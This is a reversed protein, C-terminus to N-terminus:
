LVNSNSYKSVDNHFYVWQRLFFFIYSDKQGFIYNSRIVNWILVDIIIIIIINLTYVFNNARIEYITYTRTSLFTLCQNTITKKEEDCVCRDIFRSVLDEFGKLNPAHRISRRVCLAASCVSLVCFYKCATM